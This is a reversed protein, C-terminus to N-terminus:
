LKFVDKYFFVKRNNVISAKAGKKVQFGKTRWLDYSYVANEFAEEIPMTQNFSFNPIGNIKTAKSGKIVQRGVRQWQSWARYENESDDEDKYEYSASDNSTNRILNPVGAAREAETFYCDDLDDDWYNSM